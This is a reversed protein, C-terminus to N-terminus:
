RSYETFVKGESIVVSRVVPTRLTDEVASLGPRPPMRHGLDTRRRSQMGFVRKSCSDILSRIGNSRDGLLKCDELLLLQARAHVCM